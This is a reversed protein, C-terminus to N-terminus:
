LPRHDWTDHLWQFMDNPAQNPGFGAWQGKETNTVDLVFCHVGPFIRLLDNRLSQVSKAENYDILLWFNGVYRWWAMGNSKVYSVFEEDQAQITNNLAVSYRKTM